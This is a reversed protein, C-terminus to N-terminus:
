NGNAADKLKQYEDLPIAVYPPCSRKVITYRSGDLPTGLKGFDCARVEQLGEPPKRLIGHRTLFRKMTVPEVDWKIALEKLAMGWNYLEAIVDRDSDQIAITGRIGM